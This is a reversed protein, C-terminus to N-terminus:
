KVSSPLDVFRFALVCVSAFRLYTVCRNFHWWVVVLKTLSGCAGFLMLGCVRVVSDGAERKKDKGSSSRRVIKFPSKSRSKEAAIANGNSFKLDCKCKNRHFDSESHMRLFFVM